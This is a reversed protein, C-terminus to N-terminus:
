DMVWVGVQKGTKRSFFTTLKRTRNRLAIKQTALNDESGCIFSGNDESVGVVEVITEVEGDTKEFRLVDHLSIPVIVSCINHYGDARKDMVELFLNIKAPAEQRFQDVCM